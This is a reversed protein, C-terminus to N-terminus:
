IYAGPSIIESTLIEKYVQQINRPKVVSWKNLNFTAGSSLFGIRVNNINYVQNNETQQIDNFTVKETNLLTVIGAGVVRATMDPAIIIGTDEDLGIGKSCYGMALFQLLRPIRERHLFHTDVAIDKILGFGKEVSISGKLFGRYDGDFFMTEPAAAAGASTGAISLNGEFFRSKVIEILKSKGLTQVLKSQDGGSFFVLNAESVKQLFEPKDAEDNYRIDLCSVNSIGMNRFARNYNEYVDQPYNSATPIVVINDAKTEEIVSTLVTKRSEKDEAGGILILFSNRSFFESFM